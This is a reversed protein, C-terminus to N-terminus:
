NAAAEELRQVTKKRGIFPLIAKLEPGNEEGTLALRLPMFLSKGSRGSAAKLASVWVQWTSEDWDGTPLTSIAQALFDAEAKLAPPTIDDTVISWWHAAEPLLDINHRIVDWFAAPLDSPLRSKVGEYARVQLLRRNLGLLQRMDFRAAARSIASIDYTKVAEDFRMPAPNLASGIRSLYSIIADPEVGDQRLSKLSLSDFRKSLKGGGEDLLLPLHAFTFRAKPGALADIIDLQVGTNTIHDEGRIIHTVGLELDDVVSALTYLITGDARVLVPDSIATLKVQCDGMVLDQWARHGDSLRFRWHPVKGNAEAKARQEATLSLMARDYIPPKRARIRAERKAALEQETEFCPYLRGSAKLAEIAAQYRDLRATQRATEDWAIGLWTLDTRIANEYEAKSRGTDTDDIRLLFQAAHHRAYLANAIALRANGVHLYGTPSPAFRLKM